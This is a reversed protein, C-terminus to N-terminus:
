FQIGKKLLKDLECIYTASAFSRFFGKALPTWKKGDSSLAMPLWVGKIKSHRSLMYLASGDVRHVYSRGELEFWM